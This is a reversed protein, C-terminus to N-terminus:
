GEKGASRRREVFALIGPVTDWERAFDLSSPDVSHGTEKEIWEVLRFLALSDFLGSSILATGDSLPGPFAVDLGELFAVLRGRRAAGDEADASRAM